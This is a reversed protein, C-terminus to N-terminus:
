ILFIVDELWSPRKWSFDWLVIIWSSKVASTTGAESLDSAFRWCCAILMIVAAVSVVPLENRTM